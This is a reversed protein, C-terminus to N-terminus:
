MERKYIVIDIIMLDLRIVIIDFKLNLVNVLLVDLVFFCFIILWKWFKFFFWKMMSILVWVFLILKFRVVM